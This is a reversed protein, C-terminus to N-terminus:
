IGLLRQDIHRVIENIQGNEILFPDAVLFIRRNKLEKLGELVESGLWITTKFHIKQM